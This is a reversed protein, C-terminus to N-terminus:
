ACRLPTSNRARTHAPLDKKLWAVKWLQITHDFSITALWAGDPSLAVALGEFGIAAKHGKLMGYERNSALDWFRVTADASGSVLTQGDAAYAVSTVTRSHGRLTARMTQTAVDWLKIEGPQRVRPDAPGTAIALTRGDPAFALSRVVQAPIMLIRTKEDRAAPDWVAVTKDWSGSALYRGDPAFALATVGGAHGRESWVLEGTKVDWLEVDGATDGTGKGVALLRGDPSFALCSIRVKPGKKELVREPKGTATDYLLVKGGEGAALLKGDPAFAM